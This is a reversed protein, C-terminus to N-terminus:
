SSRARDALAVVHEVAEDPDGSPSFECSVVGDYGTEDIATFINAYDLEGTGPEHRGPNDAIHIHGVLDIHNTLNRIVDGETIQQHYIDFLLGVHPHDVAKILEFGRMSTQLFYGPHDVRGNLTEPVVTVDHQEATPAVERLVDVLANQQTADDLDSQNQGVTVIMTTGGFAATGAISREIDEVAQDHYEPRVMCPEDAAMINAGAGSALTGAIRIGHEDCATTVADADASEWDFFEVADAGAAATREIGDILDGGFVAPVVVGVDFSM